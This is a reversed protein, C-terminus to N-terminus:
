LLDKESIFEYILILQVKKVAPYPRLSIKDFCSLAQSQSQM